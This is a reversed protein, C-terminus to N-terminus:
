SLMLPPITMPELVMGRCGSDAGVAAITPVNVKALQVKVASGFDAKTISPCVSDGPAAIVTLPVGIEYRGAVVSLDSPVRLPAMTIPELVMAIWDTHNGEVVVIPANFKGVVPLRPNDANALEVKVASGVNASPWVRSGPAAMVILALVMGFAESEM